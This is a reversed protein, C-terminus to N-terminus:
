LIVNLKLILSSYFINLNIYYLIIYNVSELAGKIIGCILNSYWLDKYKDPLEVYDNLPNENFILGYETDSYVLSDCNVGL